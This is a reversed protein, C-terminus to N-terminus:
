TDCEGRLDIHTWDRRAGDYLWDQPIRYGMAKAADYFWQPLHRADIGHMRDRDLHRASATVPNIAGDNSQFYGINNVDLACGLRHNSRFVHCGKLLAGYSDYRARLIQHAYDTGYKQDFSACDPRISGGTREASYCDEGSRVVM